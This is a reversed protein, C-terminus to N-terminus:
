MKRRTLIQPTDHDGSPRKQEVPPFSLTTFIQSETLILLVDWGTQVNESWWAAM